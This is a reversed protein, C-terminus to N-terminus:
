CYRIGSSLIHNTSNLMNQDRFSKIKGPLQDCHEIIDNHYISSLLKVKSNHDELQNIRSKHYMQLTQKAVMNETYLIEPKLNALINKFFYKIKGSNWTDM